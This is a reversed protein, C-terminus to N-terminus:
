GAITHGRQLPEPIKSFPVQLTHPPLPQARKQFHNYLNYSSFLLMSPIESNEPLKAIKGKGFSRKEKTLCAFCTEYNVSKYKSRCKPCLNM